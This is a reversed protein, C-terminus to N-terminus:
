KSQKNKAKHAVAASSKGLLGKEQMDALIRGRISSDKTTLAEESAGLELARKKLQKQQLIRHQNYAAFRPSILDSLRSFRASDLCSSQLYGISAQDLNLPAFNSKIADLKKDNYSQFTRQQDKSDMEEVVSM